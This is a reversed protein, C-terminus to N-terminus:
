IWKVDDVKKAAEPISKAEEEIRKMLDKHREWWGLPEPEHGLSKELLVLAQQAITRREKHAVETLKTYIDQPCDRIQLLPM